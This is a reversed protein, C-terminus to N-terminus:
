GHKQEQSALLLLLTKCHGSSSPTLSFMGHGLLQQKTKQNDTQQCILELGWVEFNTTKKWKKKGLNKELTKKEGVKLLSRFMNCSKKKDYIQNCDLVRM